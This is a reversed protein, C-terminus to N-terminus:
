IMFSVHSSEPIKIKRWTQRKAEMGSPINVTKECLM